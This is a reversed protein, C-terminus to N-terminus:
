EYKEDSVPDFVAQFGTIVAGGTAELRIQVEKARDLGALASLVQTYNSTFKIANQTTFTQVTTWTTEQNKRMAVLIQAGSGLPECTVSLGRFNLNTSFIDSRIKTTEFSSTTTYSNVTNWSGDTRGGIWWGDGERYVGTMLPPNSTAANVGVNQAVSVIGNYDLAMIVNKASADGQFKAYASFYLMDSTWHRGDFALALTPAQYEYVIQMRDGIRARVVLVSKDTVPSNTSDQRVSVVFTTAGIRASHYPVDYGLDYKATLTELSSDRDWLYATAKGDTDYGVILLFDGDESGSTIRFNTPLTLALTATTGDFSYVLNDCFFYALNNKSHVIPLAAYTYNPLDYHTPTAVGGSTVKYIHTGNYLGYFDGKYVIIGTATAGAGFTAFGSWDNDPSARWKFIAPHSASSDFGLAYISTGLKAFASLANDEIDSGYAVSTSLQLTGFQRLQGNITDFHEIRAVGDKYINPNMTQRFDTITYTTPNM